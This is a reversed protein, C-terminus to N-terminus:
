VKKIFFELLGYKVLNMKIYGKSLLMFYKFPSCLYPHKERRKLKSMIKNNNEESITKKISLVFDLLNNLFVKYTLNGPIIIDKYAQEAIRECYEINGIKEIVQDLNSFDKKVEIYHKEPIFIGAYKGELLVQCTKTICAEFHRPSVTSLNINGDLGPFCAQECMSFTSNPNNKEYNNVSLRIRGEPDLLSSGSEVGLVCRCSALFKYWKEGTIVAKPDNSLDFRLDTKIQNFKETIYWKYFGLKGLWYPNKRARYGLDIKRFKHESNKNKWNLVAEDDVYGPLVTMYHIIGTLDKPYVKEYDESFFCTCLIDIKHRKFFSCLLNSFVYEDQPMAIKVGQIKAIRDISPNFLKKEGDVWKLGLFTYHYIVVDFELNEIWIPIGWAINLYYVPCSLYKEFSKINEIITKRPNLEWNYYIVLIKM